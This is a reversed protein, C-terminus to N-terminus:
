GNVNPWIITIPVAGVEEGPQKVIKAPKNNTTSQTYWYMSKESNRENWERAGRDEMVKNLYVSTIWKTTGLEKDLLAAGKLKTDPIKESGTNPLDKGKAGMPKLSRLLTSCITDSEGDNKAYVFAMPVKFTKGADVTWKSMLAPGVTKLGIKTTPSLWVAAAVDRVEAEGLMTVGIGGSKDRRRRAEHALWLSGVAAGDGAGVLIINGSNIEKADNRRDLYARVAALDNVLYPFYSPTFNTYSITETKDGKKGKLFNRNHAHTWFKEKDVNKSDGFGRFDFSLVAYGDAHLAAALDAWGEAQSSGGKKLDFHHLLVAIADRKGGPNPYLTGSLTVGDFTPISITKTPIKKNAQAPAQPCLTMAGIVTALGLILRLTKVPRM